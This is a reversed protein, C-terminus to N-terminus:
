ADREAAGKPRWGRVRALLELAFGLAFLAGVVVPAPPLDGAIAGAFGILVSLAGMLGVGIVLRALGRARREYFMTPIALLAITLLPGVWIVGAAIIVASLVRFGFLIRGARRPDRVGLGEEDVALAFLYGRHLYASSLVVVTLIGFAILASPGIALLEGRLMHQMHAEVSTSVSSVVLTAAEGACFVSALFAVRWRPSARGSKHPMVLTVLLIGGVAVGYLQLTATGPIGLWVAIVIAAAGVPPLALGLLIEDRLSLVAGLPAAALAFSFAGVLPIWSFALVALLDSM